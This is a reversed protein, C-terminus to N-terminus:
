KKVSKRSERAERAESLRVAHTEKCLPCRISVTYSPPVAALDGGNTGGSYRCGNAFAPIKRRRNARSHKRNISPCGADKILIM